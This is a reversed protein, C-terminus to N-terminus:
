RPTTWRRATAQWDREWGTLRRRNAALHVGEGLLFLVMAVGGGVLVELGFASQGLAPRQGPTGTQRGAADVWILVRQGALAM